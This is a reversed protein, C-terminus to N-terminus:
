QDKDLDIEQSLDIETLDEEKKEIDSNYNEKELEKVIDLAENLLINRLGNETINQTLYARINLLQTILAQARDDGSKKFSDSIAADVYSVLQRFHLVTQDNLKSEYLNVIKDKFIKM